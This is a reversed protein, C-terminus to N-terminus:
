FEYSLGLRLVHVDVDHHWGPGDQEPLALENRFGIFQYTVSCRMSDNVRYEVGSGLVAGWSPDKTAASSIVTSQAGDCLDITECHQTTLANLEGAVIGARVFVLWDPAVLYGVRFSVSGYAGLDAGSEIWGGTVDREESEAADLYGAEAEVGTIFRDFQFNWGARVAVTLGHLEPIYFRPGNIESAEDDGGAHGLEIGGYPGSWDPMEDALAPSAAMPLLTALVAGACRAIENSKYM